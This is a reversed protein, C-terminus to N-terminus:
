KMITLQPIKKLRTSADVLATVTRFKVKVMKLGSEPLPLTNAALVPWNRIKSTWRLGTIPSEKVTYTFSSWCIPDSLKEAQPYASPNFCVKLVRDDPVYRNRCYDIGVVAGLAKLAKKETVGREVMWKAMEVDELEVLAAEPDDKEKPIVLIIKRVSLQMGSAATFAELAVFIDQAASIAADSPSKGEKLAANWCGGSQLGHLVIRAPDSSLVEISPANVLHLDFPLSITKDSTEIEEYFKLDQLVKEPVGDYNSNIKYEKVSMMEGSGKFKIKQDLGEGNDPLDQRNPNPMNGLFCSRSTFRKVGKQYHSLHKYKAREAQFAEKVPRNLDIKPVQASKQRRKMKREDEQTQGVLGPVTTMSIVVDTDDLSESVQSKIRLISASEDLKRRKEASEGAEFSRSRKSSDQQSPRLYVTKIEHKPAVKILPIFNAEVPAKNLDIPAFPQKKPLEVLTEKKPLEAFPDKRPLEKTKDRVWLRNKSFSSASIQLLLGLSSVFLM